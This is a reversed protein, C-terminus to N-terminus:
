RRSRATPPDSGPATDPEETRETFTTAYVERAALVDATYGRTADFTVTLVFRAADCGTGCQDLWLRSQAEGLSVECAQVFDAQERIKKEMAPRGDLLNKRRQKLESRMALLKRVSLDLLNRPPMQIVDALTPDVPDPTPGPTAATPANAEALM